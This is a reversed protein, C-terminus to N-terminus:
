DACRDPEVVASSISINIFHNVILRKFIIDHSIGELNTTALSTDGKASLLADAVETETFRSRTAAM